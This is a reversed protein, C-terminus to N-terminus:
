GPPTLLLPPVCENKVETTGHCLVQYIYMVCDVTNRTVCDLTGQHWKPIDPGHPELPLVIPSRTCRRAIRVSAKWSLTSAIKLALLSRIRLLSSMCRTRRLLCRELARTGRAAGRWLASRPPRVTHSSQPSSPRCCWQWRCTRERDRRAESRDARMTRRRSGSDERSAEPQAAAQLARWHRQGWVVDMMRADCAGGSADRHICAWRDHASILGRTDAHQSGRRQTRRHTRMYGCGSRIM